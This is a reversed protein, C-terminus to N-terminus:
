DLAARGERSQRVIETAYQAFREGAETLVIKRNTRYLLAIGLEQELRSISRSASSKPVQLEKAAETLTHARSIMLFLRIDELDM